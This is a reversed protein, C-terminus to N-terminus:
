KIAIICNVDLHKDESSELSVEKFGANLVLRVVEKSEFLRFGNKTFGLKAMKEKSRFSIILMGDPKLVRCIEKLDTEPNPWFYITNVTFVKDFANNGFPINNVEGLKIDVIGQDILVKNRTRAQSVMTESFDVGAVFGNQTVRAIEKIYKGNGFGIELIHDGKQPKLINITFRNMFDNSKNMLFGVLRGFFGKPQRLNSALAAKLGM